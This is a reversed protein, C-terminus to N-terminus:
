RTSRQRRRRAKRQKARDKASFRTSTAMSNQKALTRTRRFQYGHIRDALPHEGDIWLHTISVVLAKEGAGPYTIACAIGGEDGLYLVSDIQVADGPRLIVGNGRLSQSLQPTPRAPIPLHDNIDEMLEAVERPDDIMWVGGQSRRVVLELNVRQRIM